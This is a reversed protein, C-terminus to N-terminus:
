DILCSTEAGCAGKDDVRAKAMTRSGQRFGGPAGGM